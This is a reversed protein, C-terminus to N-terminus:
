PDGPIGLDREQAGVDDFNILEYHNREVRGPRLYSCGGCALVLAGLIALWMPVALVRAPSAHLGAGIILPSRLREDTLLDADMSVSTESAGPRHPAMSM